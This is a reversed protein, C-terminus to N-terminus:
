ETAWRAWGRKGTVRECPQGWCTCPRQRSAATACCAHRRVICLSEPPGEGAEQVFCSGHAGCSLPPPWVEARWTHRPLRPRPHAAPSPATTGAPPCVHISAPLSSHVSSPPHISYNWLKLSACIRPHAHGVDRRGFLSGGSDGAQYGKPPDGEPTTRDSCLSIGRCCRFPPAIYLHNHGLGLQLLKGLATSSAPSSRGCRRRRCTPQPKSPEVWM